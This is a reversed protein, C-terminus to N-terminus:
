AIRYLSKITMAKMAETRTLLLETQIGVVAEKNETQFYILYTLTLNLIM